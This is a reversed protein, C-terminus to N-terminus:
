SALIALKLQKVGKERMMKEALEKISRSSGRVAVIELCNDEDLHIHMTSTIVSGHEHQIDTLSEEVGRRKHDYLLLLAGAVEGQEHVWRYETLFNRIAIQVARSRDYGVKELMSDLEKLLDPPISISVRAVGRRVM